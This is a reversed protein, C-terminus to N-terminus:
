SKLNMATEIAVRVEDSLGQAFFERPLGIRLGKLPQSTDGTPRAANLGQAFDENAMDLCTSDRADFGCMASLLVACDQATRGMPGAQDLSSAYAILDTIDFYVDAM